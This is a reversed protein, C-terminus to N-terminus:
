DLFHVEVGLTSTSAKAVEVAATLTVKVKSRWFRILDVVVSLLFPLVM